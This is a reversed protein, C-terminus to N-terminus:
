HRANGDGDIAQGQVPRQELALEEQAPMRERGRGGDLVEDAHLRLDRERGVRAEPRPEVREIRVDEAGQDLAPLGHASPEHPPRQM